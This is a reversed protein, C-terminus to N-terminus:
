FFVRDPTFFGSEPRQIASMNCTSLVVANSHQRFDQGSVVLVIIVGDGRKQLLREYPASSLTKFDCFNANSCIELNFSSPYIQM